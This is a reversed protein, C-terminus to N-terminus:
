RVDHSMYHVTANPMSQCATISSATAATSAHKRVVTCCYATHQAVRRQTIEKLVHGSCDDDYWDLLEATQETSLGVPYSLVPGQVWRPCSESVGCWGRKWTV